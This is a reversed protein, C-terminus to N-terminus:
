SEINKVDKELLEPNDHVNGIVEFSFDRLSDYLYIKEDDLDSNRYDIVWSGQRFVVEGIVNPYSINQIIDGEYIETGNFDYMATFQGLTDVDVATDTGDDFYLVASEGGDHMLDGYFFNPSGDLDKARFRIKELRRFRKAPKAEVDSIESDVYDIKVSPDDYFKKVADKASDAKITATGYLIKSISLEYEM